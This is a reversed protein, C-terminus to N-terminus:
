CSVSISPWRVWGPAAPEASAQGHKRRLVASMDYTSVTGGIPSGLALEVVKNVAWACAVSPGPPSNSSSLNNNAAKAWHLLIANLGEGNYPPTTARAQAIWGAERMALVAEEEAPRLPALATAVAEPVLPPLPSVVSDVALISTKGDRGIKVLLQGGTDGDLETLVVYQEGDHEVSRSVKTTRKPGARRQLFRELEPKVASTSVLGASAMAMPARSGGGNLFRDLVFGRRSNFEVPTWGNSIPGTQTVQSGKLLLTGPADTSPASFLKTDDNVIRV